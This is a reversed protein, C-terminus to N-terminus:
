RLEDASCKSAPQHSHSVATYIRKVYKDMEDIDHIIQAAKTRDSARGPELEKLVDQQHSVVARLIHLEDQLDKIKCLLKAPESISTKHETTSSGKGHFGNIEEDKTFNEFLEVEKLAAKNISNSFIERVTLVMREGKETEGCKVQKEGASHPTKDPKAEQLRDYTQICIDVIFRALEQVSKPRDGASELHSFVSEYVVDKRGDQRHTTSTIVTDPTIIWLWLQDVRLLIWEDLNDCNDDHLEKTVIQDKNRRNIDEPNDGKDPNFQYYFEDLTRSGHITEDKYLDLLAQYSTKHENEKDEKVQIAFNVYPMYLAVREFRQNNGDKSKNSEPLLETKESEKGQDTATSRAKSLDAAEGSPSETVGTAPPQPIAIKTKMCQPKMLRSPSVDPGSTQTERRAREYREYLVNMTLDNMWQMNNAPLHIWRFEFNESTQANPKTSETKRQKQEGGHQITEDSTKKPKQTPNVEDAMLKYVEENIEQTRAARDDMIKQPGRGYAVETVSKTEQRFGPKDGTTYFDTIIADQGPKITVKPSPKKLEVFTSIGLYDDSQLLLDRIVDLKFEPDEKREAKKRTQTLVDDRVIRADPWNPRKLRMSKDLVEQARNRKKRSKDTPAIVKLLEWVIRVDGCYVALELADWDNSVVARDSETRIQQELHIRVLGHLKADQIAWQLTDKTILEQRLSSAAIRLFIEVVERYHNNVAKGFATAGTKDKQMIGENSMNGLLIEVRHPKNSSAALHLATEGNKAQLEAMGPVNLLYHMTKEYEGLTSTGRKWGECEEDEVPESFSAMHLATRGEDDVTIKPKSKKLLLDVIDAYGQQSAKFLATHKGHDSIDVDADENLLKELITRHGRWSSRMLATWGYNDQQNINPNKKLLHEVIAEHGFQAAIMLATYGDNTKQNINPDKKLLHEVTAEHGFRTAYILATLGDNHQQNIYPDNKLLREVIAEHGYVAAIMLATYGDNNQQNISPDKKLLREVIAENGGRIASMLATYGDNDQQNINANKELLHEIISEHGHWAACKLPTWGDNDQQNINADKKLLHEVITEHGFRAAYILATWGDKDQENINADKELLHEVIAEHGYRAAIMLATYGDNNKQSINPDKKLLREVIAEHGYRTAYILATWGDNDQQNINPDKKLLHEFIAEHGYRAAIMLATCGDNAKQSINPDKKLLREIIAGHGYRAATILPTYGSSDVCNINVAESDLLMTVTSEWGAHCADDLPTCGDEDQINLDAGHQIAHDLLIRVIDDKGSWCADHLPTRSRKNKISPDVGAELLVKLVNVSGWHVAIHVASRGEENVANKEEAGMKSLLARLVADETDIDMVLLHLPTQGDVNRPALSAEPSIDKIQSALDPVKAPDHEAAELLKIQLDKLKQDHDTAHGEAEVQGEPSGGREPEETTDPM